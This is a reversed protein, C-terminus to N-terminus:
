KKFEEIQKEISVHILEAIGGSANAGCSLCVAAIEFRM